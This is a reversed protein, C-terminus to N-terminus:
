VFHWGLFVTFIAPHLKRKYPLGKYPFFALLFGFPLSPIFIIVTMSLFAAVLTIRNEGVQFGDMMLWYIMTNTIILPVAIILYQRRSLPFLQSQTTSKM